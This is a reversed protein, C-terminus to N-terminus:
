LSNLSNLSFISMTKIIVPTIPFKNSRKNKPNTVSKIVKGYQGEKLIASASKDQETKRKSTKEKKYLLAIMKSLTVDTFRM